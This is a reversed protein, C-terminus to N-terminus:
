YSLRPLLPKALWLDRTRAGGLGGCIARSSQKIATAGNKTGGMVGGRGAQRAAGRAAPRAAETQKCWGAKGEAICDLGDMEWSIVRAASRIAAGGIPRYKQINEGGPLDTNEYRRVIFAAERGEGSGAEREGDRGEGRRQKGNGEDGIEGGQTGNGRWARDGRGQKGVPPGVAERWATARGADRMGAEWGAQGRGAARGAKSASQRPSPTDIQTTTM